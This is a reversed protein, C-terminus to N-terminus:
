AARPPPTSTADRDERRATETTVPVAEKTEDRAERAARILTMVLHRQELSLSDLRVVRPQHEAWRAAAGRKGLAVAAPDKEANATSLL